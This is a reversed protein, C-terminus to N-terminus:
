NNRKSKLRKYEAEISQLFTRYTYVGIAEKELLNGAETRGGRTNM